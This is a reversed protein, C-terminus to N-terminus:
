DAIPLGDFMEMVEVDSPQVRWGEVSFWGREGGAAHIRCWRRDDTLDITARTGAKLTTSSRWQLPEPCLRLDRRLTIKVHMPKYPQPVEALVQAEESWRYACPYFWTCLIEGRCETQVTGSGDIRLEAGPVIGILRIRGEAYRLFFVADDDSPGWQPVAIELSRDTSDLDVITAEGHFNQGLGEYTAPGIQVKFRNISGSRDREFSVSATDPSGDRNLDGQLHLARSELPQASTTTLAVTTLMVM